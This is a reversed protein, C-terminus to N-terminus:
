LASAALVLVGFKLFILSNERGTKSPKDPVTASSGESSKRTPRAGVALLSSFAASPDSTRVFPSIERRKTVVGFKAVTDRRCSFISAAEPTM